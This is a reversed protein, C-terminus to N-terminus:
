NPMVFSIQFDAVPFYAKNAIYPVAQIRQM